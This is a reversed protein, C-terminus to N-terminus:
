LNLHGRRNHRRQQKGETERNCPTNKVHLSGNWSLKNNEKSNKKIEKEKEKEQNVAEVATVEYFDYEM